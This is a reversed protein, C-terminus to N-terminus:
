KLVIYVIIKDSVWHLVLLPQQGIAELSSNGLNWVIYLTHPFHDVHIFHFCFIAAIFQVSLVHTYTSEFLEVQQHVLIQDIQSLYELGPPVGPIAAPAAMFQPAPRQGPQGATCLIIVLQQM